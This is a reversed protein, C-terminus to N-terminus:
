EDTIVVSGNWAFTLGFEVYGKEQRAFLWEGVPKSVKVVLMEGDDLEFTVSWDGVGKDVVLLVGTVVRELLMGVHTTM